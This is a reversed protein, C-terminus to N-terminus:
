KLPARTKNPKLKGRNSMKLLKISDIDFFSNKSKTYIPSADSSPYKKIVSEFKKIGSIVDERKSNLLNNEEYFDSKLEIIEYIKNLTDIYAKFNKDRVVRDRFDFANKIRGNEIKAPNSGLAMIWDRKSKNEIGYIEPAFSIGDYEYKKDPSTQALDCLTPLLDSFDILADSTIGEPVIGPANIIFPANVGNESLMSKGGKVSKGNLDGIISGSTGNDTTWIIITNERIGIQDLAKVLVNLIHDAYRVMSKHQESKPANPELPTSTLPGHPLCMPYYIMMPKDKNKKMFDIIFDTFVDEGFKNKYVKSGSKTHIYPDWYRNESLKINGGEGGTWMCYEDFGAKVMADPELRFDNIQWKGAACTSYGANRLMKPFSPNLNPDFRVGHGWRPVDFHNVWGHRWPYQGTLLTVRTPTCQPMSYVNKFSIGTSILKDIAPTKIESAGFGSIWEKGLDDLMIFLINPRQDFFIKKENCSFFLLILILRKIM